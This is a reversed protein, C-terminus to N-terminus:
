RWCPTSSRSAPSASRGGPSSRRCSASPSISGIIAAFLSPIQAKQDWLEGGEPFRRRYEAWAILAVAGGGVGNFLAVMQPMATMKVQRAAPVGVITGLVIGGVILAWDEGDEVVGPILLTAGFAVAMGVAAIKNGAVATKPGSLGRLGVIFLIVAVLYLGQIFDHDRYFATALTV